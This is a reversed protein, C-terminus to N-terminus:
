RGAVESSRPHSIINSEEESKDLPDGGNTRKLAETFEVIDDVGDVVKNVSAHAGQFAKILHPEVEACRKSLKEGEDEAFSKLKKLSDLAGSLKPTMLKARERQIQLRCLQIIIEFNRTDIFEDEAM